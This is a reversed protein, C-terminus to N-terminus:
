KTIVVPESYTRGESIVVVFYLGNGLSAADVPLRDTSRDRFSLQILERGTLDIVKIRGDQKDRFNLEVQFSGGSPNPYVSLSHDQKTQQDVGVNTTCSKDAPGQGLQYGVTFHHTISTGFDAQFFAETMTQLFTSGTKM